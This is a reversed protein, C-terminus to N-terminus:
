VEFATRASADANTAQLTATATYVGSPPDSWTVERHLSEGPPLTEDDLAQTFMRDASWRWVEEGDEFVAVNAVQGTSFQLTAPEEDDNTVTFAFAVSGEEVSVDLTSDLTM